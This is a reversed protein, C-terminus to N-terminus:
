IYGAKHAMYHGYRTGYGQREAEAVDALLDQETRRPAGSYWDLLRAREEHAERCEWSCFVQDPTEPVFEKECEPCQRKKYAM